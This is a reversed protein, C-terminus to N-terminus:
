VTLEVDNEVSLDCAEHSQGYELTGDNYTMVHAEYVDKEEHVYMENEGNLSPYTDRSM